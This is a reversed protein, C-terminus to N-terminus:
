KSEKLVGNRVVKLDTMMKREDQAAIQKRWTKM